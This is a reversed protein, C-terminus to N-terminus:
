GCFLLNPATVTTQPDSDWLDKKKEPPPPNDSNKMTIKKQESNQM